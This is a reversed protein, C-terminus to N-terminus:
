GAVEDFLTPEHVADCVRGRIVEVYRAELEIGIAKRGAAKAAV